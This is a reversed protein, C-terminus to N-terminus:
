RFRFAIRPDGPASPRDDSRDWINLSGRLVFEPAAFGYQGM